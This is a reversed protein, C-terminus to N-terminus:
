LDDSPKNLSDIINDSCTIGEEPVLVSVTSGIIVDVEEGTVNGM